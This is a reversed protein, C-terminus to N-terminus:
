KRVGLMVAYEGDGAVTDPYRVLYSMPTVPNHRNLIVKDVQSVKDAEADSKPEIECNLIQWIRAGQEPTVQVYKGSSLKIFAM